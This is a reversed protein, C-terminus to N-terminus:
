TICLNLLSSPKRRMLSVPMNSAPRSRVLVPRVFRAFDLDADAQHIGGFMGIHLRRGVPRPMRQLSGFGKLNESAGRLPKGSFDGGLPQLAETVIRQGLLRM